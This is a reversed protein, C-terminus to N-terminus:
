RAAEEEDVQSIAYLVIFLAVLVTMMDAYSVLWRSDCCSRKEWTPLPAKKMDRLTVQLRGAGGVNLWNADPSDPDDDIDALTGATFGVSELIADPITRTVPM